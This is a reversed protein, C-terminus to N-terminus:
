PLRFIWAGSERGACTPWMHAVAWPTALIGRWRVSTPGRPVSWGRMQLDPFDFNFVELQMIRVPRAPIEVAKKRRALRYSRIGGVKVASYAPPVQLVEGRFRVLTADIEDESPIRVDPVSEIVGEADGTDSRAGLRFRVRYEKDTGAITESLRTYTGFCLVLVGTALPDLTGCHGIRHMGLARRMGAVIDHSTPGAEKDIVLIGRSPKM